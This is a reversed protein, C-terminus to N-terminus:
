IGSEKELIPAAGDQVEEMPGTEAAQMLIDWLTGGDRFEHGIVNVLVIDDACSRLFDKSKTAGERGSEGVVRVWEAWLGFAEEVWARFSVAEVMTATAIEKGPFMGWTVAHVAPPEDSPHSSEFGGMSDGAYWSVADRAAPSELYPRLRTRWQTAPIFFEVFAKQFVFGGEPGWGHIPHSSALGNVAPQSAITWWNRANLRLLYPLILGTEPSLTSSESWPLQTPSLGSLHATFLSTIEDVSRPIGWLGLADSSSVPLTSPSYSLPPHFAPSRADGFRGNPYDDWTAERSLPGTGHTTALNPALTSSLCHFPPSTSLHDHSSSVTSRRRDITSDPCNHNLNTILIPASCDYSIEEIASTAQKDTEATSPILGSQELIHGVAKELNLTYFHFGRPGKSKVARIGHIIESIVDVGLKKVVDDDNGVGEFRRMLEAPFSAHSLKTTRKLVNLSQIPMLGPIIPINTFVGSEHERLMREFGLFADLDYFLQTMIFDAGAEIKEILYPLDRKPNQATPYSEDAHGEPYAAVGVCFYDGYTRRIYRILDVAWTLGFNNDKETDGYSDANGSLGYEHERPPDGRLALINRVGLAKAAELTEDVIERQMNTCTLHLCTTLGLQRQCIEALELSRSATCGGAGWTVTVFLPQLVRSM